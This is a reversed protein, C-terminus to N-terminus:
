EYMERPCCALLRILQRNCIDLIHIFIIPLSKIQLGYILIKVDCAVM